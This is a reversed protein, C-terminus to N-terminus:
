SRSMLEWLGVCMNDNSVWLDMGQLTNLPRRLPNRDRAPQTSVARPLDMKFFDATRGRLANSIQCSTTQFTNMRRDERQM